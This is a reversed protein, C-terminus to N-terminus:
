AVMRSVEVWDNLNTVYVLTLTDGATASFDVSGALRIGGSGHTVTSAGAFVLTIRREGWRGSINSFNLGNSVYFNDGIESIQLVGTDVTTATPNKTTINDPFKNFDSTSQDSIDVVAADIDFLCNQVTVQSTAASTISVGLMSTATADFQTNRFVSNAIIIKDTGQGIGVGSGFATATTNCASFTVGNILNYYGARFLMGWQGAKHVLGGNINFGAFNTASVDVFIGILRPTLLRSASLEIDGFQATSAGTVRISYDCNNDFWINSCRIGTIQETGSVPEIHMDAEDVGMIHGNNFWIGDAANIVIGNEIYDVSATRRFNFNTIFIEVPPSGGDDERFRTFYSGAKVGSWSVPADTRGSKITVNTWHHNLGGLVDIGGFHDKIDVNHLYVDQVKNLLLCANDTTDVMARVGMNQISFGNLYSTGPSSAHQVELAYGTDHYVRITSARPGAGVMTVFDSTIPLAATVKYLGAPFFLVGGLAPLDAIALLIAATDDTTDDGVAGYNKVNVADEYISRDIENLWDSTIVTGASFNTSAM